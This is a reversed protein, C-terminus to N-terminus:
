HNNSKRLKEIIMLGSRASSDNPDYRLSEQFISQAQDLEGKETLVAALGNWTRRNDPRLDISKRFAAEAEEIKRQFENEDNGRQFLLIFGLDTLYKGSSPDLEVARRFSSEAEQFKLQESFIVGLLNWAPAHKPDVQTARVCVDRSPEHRGMSRLAEAYGLLSKMHDPDAKLAMHYEEAAEAFHGKGQLLRGLSASAEVLHSPGLDRCQRYKKMAQDIHGQNELIVALNYILAPTKIVGEGSPAEAKAVMEIASEVGVAKWFAKEDPSRIEGLFGKEQLIKWLELAIRRHGEENPHVYDQILNFGILGDPTIEEFKNEIDLLLVNKEAAIRRISDNIASGARTPKVDRDRAYRYAERAEDYRGLNEYIKGLLFHVEAHGPALSKAKELKEAGENFTSVDDQNLADKAEDLLDLVARRNEISVEPTFISQNPKWGNINSPVTCLIVPVRERNALDLIAKLNEEFLRHAEAKETETVDVSHERIVDIGLLEGMTKGRAGEAAQQNRHKESIKLYLRTMFSYLRWRFLLLRIRDLEAPRQFLDRYFRREVFENHGSYIIIGDPEYRLIERMLIRLRHSGYSMASANIVEIDRDPYSAQLAERLYESFSVETGWPFGYASSGGLVFLRFGNDPKEAKFEQYNFSHLIARRPTKYIGRDKDIQYVRVQESFGQFPDRQSLLTPVGIIWLIVELIFFFLLVTILSFIPIKWKM